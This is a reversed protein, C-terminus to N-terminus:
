YKSLVERLPAAWDTAALFEASPDSLFVPPPDSPEEIAKMFADVDPEFPPPMFPNPLPTM